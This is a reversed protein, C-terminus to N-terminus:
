AERNKLHMNYIRENDPAIKRNWIYREIQRQFDRINSKNTPMIKLAYWLKPSLINNAVCIKGKISLTKRDWFTTSKFISEKMKTINSKTLGNRNVFIGLFKAENVSKIHPHRLTPTGINLITCKNYNPYLVSDQQARDKWM